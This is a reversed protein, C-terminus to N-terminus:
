ASIFDSYRAAQYELTFRPDNALVRTKADICSKDQVFGNLLNVLDGEQYFLMSSSFEGISGFRKPMLQPKKYAYALNFTGSIANNVYRGDEHPLPMILDSAELWTHFQADDIFDDFFLFYKSLGKSTITAKLAEGDGDKHNHRGLLAFRIRGDLSEDINNILADYDRRKYEVQGPICVLFIEEKEIAFSGFSPFFIPYFSSFHLHGHSKTQHLLHDSLVFYKKIKQTLLKQMGSNKLKDVSHIIGIIEIGQLMFPLYRVASWVATNIVVKKINHKKLYHRIQMFQQWRSKAMSLFIFADVTEFNKVRTKHTSNCLLHVQYGSKQLFLTQSYLVETHGKSLELIAIKQM